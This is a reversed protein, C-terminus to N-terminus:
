YSSLIAEVNDPSVFKYVTNDIMIAPAISCAGICRAVDLTFRRDATTGGLEVNLVQQLKELIKKGGRVYCATGLCILITHKGKPKTSFFSYFTVVGSVQSIPLKMKEAILSQIKLPLYGYIQQAAHLIQILNNSSAKYFDIVNFIQEIQEQESCDQCLTNKDNKQM